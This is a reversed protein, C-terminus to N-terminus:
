EFKNLGAAIWKEDDGYTAVFWEVFEKSANPVEAATLPANNALYGLLFKIDWSDSLKKDESARGLISGCKANLILAPKLVKVGAVQVVPTTADFDEKFLFPPALIEIDIRTAANYYTHATRPEMVFKECARLRARAAITAGKPVVIDVDTTARQSGLLVCGAGGVVAYTDTAMAAGVAIAADLVAQRPDNNAPSSM